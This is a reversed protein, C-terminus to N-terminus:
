IVKDCENACVRCAEACTKCHDMDSHKGCEDACKRCIEACEKLLHKAHDSNRSVFAATVSCIQACDMDLRICEKMKQVDKEELCATSCNNCASACEALVNILHSNNNNM